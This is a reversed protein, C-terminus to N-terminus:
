EKHQLIWQDLTSISLNFAKCTNSKDLTMNYYRMVMKRLDIEYLSEM